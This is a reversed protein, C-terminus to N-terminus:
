AQEAAALTPYDTYGQPGPLLLAGLADPEAPREAGASSCTRTKAIM